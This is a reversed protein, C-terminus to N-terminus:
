GNSRGTAAFVVVGGIAILVVPWMLQWDVRFWQNVLAMAGVAVFVIGVILGGQGPAVNIGGGAYRAPADGDTREPVIVAAILYLILMPFIGTVLGLVATLLRVMTADSGNYEAIGGCVGALVRNSRSRVFRRQTQAMPPETFGTPQDATPSATM